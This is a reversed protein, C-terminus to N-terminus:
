AIRLGYRDRLYACLAEPFRPDGREIETTPLEFPQAPADESHVSVTPKGNVRATVQQLFVAQGPDAALVEIRGDEHLGVLGILCEEDLHEEAIEDYVEATQM